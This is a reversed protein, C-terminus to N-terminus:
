KKGGPNSRVLRDFLDRWGREICASHFCKFSAGRGEARPKYAVGSDPKGDMSHDGHEDQWPCVIPIWGAQKEGIVYGGRQLAEWVPDRSDRDPHQWRSM